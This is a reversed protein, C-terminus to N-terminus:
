RAYPNEHASRSETRPRDYGLPRGGVIEPGATNDPFPDHLAANNRQQNITGPPGWWPRASCGVSIIGVFVLLFCFDIPLKM